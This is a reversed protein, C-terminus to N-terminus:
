AGRAPPRHASRRQRRRRESGAPSRMSSSYALVTRLDLPAMMATVQDCVSCHATATSQLYSVYTGCRPCWRLDDYFGTSFM